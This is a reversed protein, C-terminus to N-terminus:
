PSVSSEVASADLGPPRGATRALLRTLWHVRAARADTSVRAEPALLDFAHCGGPWVHLEADAGCQWLRSAYAIDEDRFTEASGVDLFTPPLGRLDEARAPAAYGPVDPGGVRDGLYASWGTANATRDWSGVGAMQVASASDNRDDLMPYVLLQGLLAPGGRDRALLATAAAIGGGASVGSVVIRAPDVGHEAGHEVLWGLGAYADEVAAPYPHEPALRYEVAAVAAGVQAAIELLWPLDDLASGTVLGGGHLHYLVPVADRPASPRALVLTVEAQDWPVTVRHVAVDYTGDLTLAAPDPPHVRRRLEDIGEPALGTVVEDGLATMVAEVEPDFPPRLPTATM